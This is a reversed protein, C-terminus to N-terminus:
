KKEGKEQEGVVERFTSIALDISKIRQYLRNALVGDTSPSLWNRHGDEVIVKLAEVLGASAERLFTLLTMRMPQLGSGESLLKDLIIAELARNVVAELKERDTM